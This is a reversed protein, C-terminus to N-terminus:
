SYQKESWWCLTLTPIATFLLIAIASAGTNQIWVADTVGVFLVSLGERSGALELMEILAVFAVLLLRIQNNMKTASTEM